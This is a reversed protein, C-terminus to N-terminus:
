DHMSNQIKRKIWLINYFIKEWGIIACLAKVRTNKSIDENLIIEKKHKQLFRKIAKEGSYFNADRKKQSYIYGLLSEVYDNISVPLGIQRYKIYRRKVIEINKWLVDRDISHTLSNNNQIYYYLCKTSHRMNKFFPTIQTLIDYDELMHYTENFRVEKFFEARIVQNWLFNKLEREMSQEYVFEQLSVAEPLKIHCPFNKGNITLFYDFFFCDPQYKNLNEQIVSYWASAVYDDADVWAIYDGTVYKLGLNRASGVGGNTKHFSHIFPYMRKYSQLLEWTNDKSGDDICIIEVNQDTLSDIISDLCRELTGGGNYTPIIVSLKNKYLAMLKLIRRKSKVMFTWNLQM